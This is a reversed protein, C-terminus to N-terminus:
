VLTAYELSYTWSGSGSHYVDAYWTRPVPLAYAKNSAAVEPTGSAGPAVMLKYTGNTAAAIQFQAVVPGKKGSPTVFGLRFVLYEAGGPNATVDLTLVIGRGNYNTQNPSTALTTRAAGALLLGETNEVPNGASNTSSVKLSKNTDVKLGQANTGDSAGLLTVDKGAVASGPTQSVNSGAVSVPAPDADSWPVWIGAKKVWLASDHMWTTANADYRASTKIGDGDRNLQQLYDAM